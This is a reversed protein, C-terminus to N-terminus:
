KPAETQENASTKGDGRKVIQKEPDKSGAPKKTDIKARLEPSLKELDIETGSIDITARMTAFGAPLNTLPNNRVRLQNVIQVEGFSEPLSAIRNDGMFAAITNTAAVRKM